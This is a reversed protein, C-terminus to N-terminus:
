AKSQKMFEIVTRIEDETTAWSVVFRISTQETGIPNWENFLIHESIKSLMANEVIPFLQNSETEIEFRYGLSHLELSLRAATVNAKRALDFYLNDKFLAQFQIGLLFGKALLGGRQKIFYRFDSGLKPNCLVLAEGFLLGSKTGGIYFADTLEAIQPLSLNNYDSTLAYGLRAGDVYLLLDNERCFEHLNTLEKRTYVTGYETTQSIYVLRPKVMHESSYTKLIKEIAEIHLKGDSSEVTLVKHGSAEIAGTEHLSIHAPFPAIAAEHPRLFASIAVLNAHTGGILFHVAAGPNQVLGLITERAAESDEDIGYGDYKETLRAQLAELVLPHAVTNYDNLLNVKAITM